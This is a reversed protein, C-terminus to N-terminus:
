QTGLIRAAAGAGYKSDFDAKLNPNAKLYSVAASPPSTPQSSGSMNSRMPDAQMMDLAIKKKEDLSKSSNMVDANVIKMAEEYSMINQPKGAGRFRDVLGMYKNAAEPGEKALISHYKGIM